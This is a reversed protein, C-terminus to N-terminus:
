VITERETVSTITCSRGLCISFSLVVNQQVILNKKFMRTLEVICCVINLIVYWVIHGSSTRFPVVYLRVGRTYRREVRYHFFCVSIIIKVRNSLLLSSKILKTEPLQEEDIANAQLTTRHM